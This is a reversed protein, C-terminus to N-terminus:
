ENKIKEQIVHAEPLIATATTNDVRFQFNPLNRRAEEVTERLRDKGVATTVLSEEECNRVLDRMDGDDMPKIVDNGREFHRKLDNEIRLLREKVSNTRWPRKPDVTLM